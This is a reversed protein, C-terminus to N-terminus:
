RAAEVAAHQASAVRARLLTQFQALPLAGEVARGDVYFTPTARIGLRKAQISAAETRRDTRRTDYCRAFAPENLGLRRAEERFVPFAKITNKWDRQRAYLREHMPWFKGQEAACESARAAQKGNPFIGMAFPVYKFLVQGTRVFERELAPYTERAFRACYPCGFDSFNVVVVPADPRGQDYGVGTLDADRVMVRRLTRSPDTQPSGPQADATLAALVSTVVLLAVGGTARRANSLRFRM